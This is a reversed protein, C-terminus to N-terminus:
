VDRSEVCARLDHALERAHQYRQAANKQLARELIAEASQPLDSRLARIPRPPEHAIKFLLATINEAQFPKESTLLEFLVVGLSFIDARGDVDDGTVQEPSMYSPTGMIMTTQTKTSSTIRAIGFDMVKIANETTLMINSPKVDRHVIGQRHAYDLADAVTAALTVAQPMPLLNDKRCWAKLTVGELFEMAIYGLDEEEGADFITVINPHSLRGTSEAEHFFRAKVEKVLDPDEAQDLRMTKIAVSRHITPDEGLYVIGMSGRGLEKLIRYRGITRKLTPRSLTLTGDTDCETRVTQPSMYELTGATLAARKVSHAGAGRQHEFFAILAHSHRVWSVTLWFASMAMAMVIIWHASLRGASRPFPAEITLLIRCAVFVVILTTLPRLIARLFAFGEGDDPIERTTRYSLMWVMFLAGAYSVMRVIQSMAMTTPGAFSQKLLPVRSLLMGLVLTWFIAMAYPGAWAWVKLM